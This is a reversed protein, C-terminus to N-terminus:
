NGVWTSNKFNITYRKLVEMTGIEITEGDEINSIVCGHYSETRGKGRNGKPLIKKDITIPDTSAVALFIDALDQIATGRGSFTSFHEWTKQGFLEYLEVVMSGMTVAFPTILEVPRIEDLPHIPVTQAVPTPSQLSVQRAFAIVKGSWKFQTVSSGGIRAFDAM